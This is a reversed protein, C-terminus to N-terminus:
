LTVKHKQALQDLNRGATLLKNALHHLIEASVTEGTVGTVIDVKIRVELTRTEDYYFFKVGELPYPFDDLASNPSLRLRGRIAYNKLRGETASFGDGTPGAGIADQFGSDTLADYVDLCREALALSTNTFHVPDGM